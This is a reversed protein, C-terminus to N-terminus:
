LRLTPLSSQYLPEPESLVVGAAISGAIIGAAAVGLVVWLPTLDEGGERGSERPEVSTAQAPVRATGDAASTNTAALDIPPPSAVELELQLERRQQELLQVREHAAENEDRLVAIVHDGPDMPMAVGLAAHPIEVEDIRVVDRAELNTVRLLLLPIRQELARLKENATDRYATYRPQNSDHLFRRFAESAAVLRNGRELVTGLNYFTMPRPALEASRRFSDAATDWDRRETAEVGQDFLRRALAVEEARQASATTTGLGVLVVFVCAISPFLFGFRSASMRM